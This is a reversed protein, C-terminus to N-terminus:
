RGAAGVYANYFSPAQKWIKWKNWNMRGRRPKGSATHRCFDSRHQNSLLDDKDTVETETEKAADVNGTANQEPAKEARSCRAQRAANSRGRISGRRRGEDVEHM